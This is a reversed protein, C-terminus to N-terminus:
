RKSPTFGPLANIFLRRQSKLSLSMKQSHADVWLNFLRSAASGQPASSRVVYGAFVTSAIIFGAAGVPM